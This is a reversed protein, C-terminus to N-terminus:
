AMWTVPQESSAEWGNSSTFSVHLQSLLIALTTQLNCLRRYNTVIAPLSLAWYHADPCSPVHEFCAARHCWLKLSRTSPEPSVSSYARTGTQASIIYPGTVQHVLLSSAPHPDQRTTLHIFIFSEARRACRNTIGQATRRRVGPEAGSKSFLLWAGCPTAATRRTM